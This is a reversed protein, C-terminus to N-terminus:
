PEVVEVDFSGDVALGTQPTGVVKISKKGLAATNTATVTIDVTSSQSDVRATSPEVTIGEPAEFSINVIQDFASGRSVTITFTESAGQAINAAGTPMRLTFTNASDEVERVGDDVERTTTDDRDTTRDQVNPTTAAGPGGPETTNCATGVIVLLSILGTTMKSVISLM